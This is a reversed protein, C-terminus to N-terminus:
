PKRAAIAADIAADLSDAAAYQTGGAALRHSAVFTTGDPRTWTGGDNTLTLGKQERLWRYRMADALLGDVEARLADREAVIPVPEGHKAVYKALADNSMASHILQLAARLRDIEDAAEVRDAYAVRDRLRQTLDDM